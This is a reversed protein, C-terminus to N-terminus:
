GYYFVFLGYYCCCMGNLSDLSVLSKCSEIPPFVLVQRIVVTDGSTSEISSVIEVRLNASLALHTICLILFFSIFAFSSASTWFSWLSTYYKFSSSAKFLFPLVLSIVIYSYRSLSSFSLSLYIAIFQSSISLIFCSFLIILNSNYFSLVIADSTLEDYLPSLLGLLKQPTLSLELRAETELGSPKAFMSAIALPFSASPSLSLSLSM